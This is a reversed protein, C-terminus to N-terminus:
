SHVILADHIQLKQHTNITLRIEEHSNNILEISYDTLTSSINKPHFRKNMRTNTHQLKLKIAATLLKIKGIAM